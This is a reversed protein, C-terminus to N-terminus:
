GQIGTKSNDLTKVFADRLESMISTFCYFSDAEVSETFEPHRDHAFCYYIPALIENM